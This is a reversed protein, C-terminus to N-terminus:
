RRRDLLLKKVDGLYEDMKMNGELIGINCATMKEVEKDKIEKAVQRFILIKLTM